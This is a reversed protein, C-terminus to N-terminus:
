PNRQSQPRNSPNRAKTGFVHFRNKTQVQLSLLTLTETSVALAECRGGAHGTTHFLTGSGSEATSRMRRPQQRIHAQQNPGLTVTITPSQSHTYCPTLTLFDPVQLDDDIAYMMYPITAKTQIATSGLTWNQV